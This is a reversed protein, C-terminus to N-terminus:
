EWEQREKEDFLYEPPPNYSEHHTPLKMKAAAVPVAGTLM